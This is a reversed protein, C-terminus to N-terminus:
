GKKIREDLKVEIENIKRDHEDLKKDVHEGIIEYITSHLKSDDPRKDIKGSVSNDWFKDRIDKTRITGPIPNTFEHRKGNGDIFTITEASASVDEYPAYVVVMSEEVREEKDDYRELVCNDYLKFHRTVEVENKHGRKFTLMGKWKQKNENYHAPEETRKGVAQFHSLQNSVSYKTLIDHWYQMQDNDDKPSRLEITKGTLMDIFKIYNVEQAEHQGHMINTFQKYSETSSQTFTSIPLVKWVVWMGKKKDDSTLRHLECDSFLRYKRTKDQGFNVSKSGGWILM